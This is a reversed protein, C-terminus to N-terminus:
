KAKSKRTTQQTNIDLEDLLGLVVKEAERNLKTTKVSSKIARFQKETRVLEPYSMENLPKKVTGSSKLFLDLKAANIKKDVQSTGYIIGAQYALSFIVSKLRETPNHEALKRIVATAESFTLDKTSKSRGNTVNWVIEEKHETWGNEKLLIHIKALQARTINKM